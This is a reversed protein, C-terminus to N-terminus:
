EHSYFEKRDQEQIDYALGCLSSLLMLGVMLLSLSNLHRFTAEDDFFITLPWGFIAVIVSFMFVIVFTVLMGLWINGLFKQIGVPLVLRWFGLPKNIRTATLSAILAMFIPAFGGGVLFLAISLLMLVGAGHKRDVFGIAWFIVVIGLVVSLIGSILFSPIITFATEEGYIWFRHEPSIAAILLGSPPVHGQLIEFIGHDIGALGVLAGLTSAVVRTAHNNVKVVENEM